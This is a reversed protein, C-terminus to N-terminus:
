ISAETSIVQEWIGRNKMIEISLDYLNIKLVGIGKNTLTNYLQGYLESMEEFEAPKFPCIFFRM